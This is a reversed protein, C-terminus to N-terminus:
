KRWWDDRGRLWEWITAKKTATWNHLSMYAAKAKSVEMREQRFAEYSECHSHCHLERKQCDFCPSKVGSFDIARGRGKM